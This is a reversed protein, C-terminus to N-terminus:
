IHEMAGVCHELLRVSVGSNWVFPACSMKRGKKWLVCRSLLSCCGKGEHATEKNEAAASPSVLAPAAAHAKATPTKPPTPKKQAKKTKEMEKKLAEKELREKRKREKEAKIKDRRLKDRDKKSLAASSSPKSASTTAKAPSKLPLLSAKMDGPSHSPLFCFPLLSCLPTFSCNVHTMLVAHCFVPLALLLPTMWVDFSCLSRLCCAYTRRTGTKKEESKLEEDTAHLFAEYHAYPILPEALESFFSSAFPLHM